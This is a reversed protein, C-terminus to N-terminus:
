GAPAPDDPSLAPGAPGSGDVAARQARDRYVRYVRYGVACLPVAVIAGVVGALLSGAFVVIVVAVPHLRVQRGVIVPELLNGELQQVVVVAVLTLVADAPGNAALAVLVAVAGTVAAGIYPVLGGVFVLLGLPLALPVGIVYLAAGIGVADIAAVILVGRIYGTVTAWGETAGASWPARARAPLEGLFWRWM